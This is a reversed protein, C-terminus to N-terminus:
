SEGTSFTDHTEVFIYTKILKQTKSLKWEMQLCLNRIYDVVM